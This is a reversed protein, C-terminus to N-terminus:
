GYSPKKADPGDTAWRATYLRLRKGYIYIPILCASFFVSIGAFISFAATYGVADYFPVLGYNVGFSIVGRLACVLQTVLLLTLRPECPEAFIRRSVVLVSGAREPYADLLYTQGVVSAAIFAFYQASYEWIIGFWHFKFVNDIQVGYLVTALIGAIIPIIFPLLRTEPEHVGNNRRARWKIQSLSTLRPILRRDEKAAAAAM